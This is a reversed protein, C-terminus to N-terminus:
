NFDKFFLENEMKSVKRNKFQILHFFIGTVKPTLNFKQENKILSLLGHLNYTRKEEFKTKM